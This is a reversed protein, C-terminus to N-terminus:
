GDEGASEGLEELEEGGPGDTQHRGKNNIAIAGGSNKDNGKRKKMKTNQQNLVKKQQVSVSLSLSLSLSLTLAHLNITKEKEKTQFLQNTKFNIESRLLILLPTQM